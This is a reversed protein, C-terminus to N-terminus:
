RLNLINGPEDSPRGPQDKSTGSSVVELLEVPSEIVAELVGGALWDLLNDLM